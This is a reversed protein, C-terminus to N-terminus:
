LMLKKALLDSFNLYDTEQIVNTFQKFGMESPDKDQMDVLYVEKGENMLQQCFNLAQKQADKDLAIYIKSVSSMVIKKMLSSQINKGLLPVVNRKIAIADFPGECLVLPLDWNIFFECPIINRSVNPNKYKIPNTKEFSRATFYNLNGNEDYSPIIIRNAYVGKECYGLNYKIIDVMIKDIAGPIINDDDSLFWIYDGSSNAYCALVNADFGQNSQFINASVPIGNEKFLKIGFAIVQSTNDESGNNSIFVAINSKYIASNIECCLDLLAKRLRKARNYTPIAITLKM